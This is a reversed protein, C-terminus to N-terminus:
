AKAAKDAAPAAAKLPKPDICGLPALEKAETPSLSITKGAEYRRDSQIARTVTYDPM